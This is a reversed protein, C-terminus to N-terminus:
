SGHIQFNDGNSHPRYYEELVGINFGAGILRAILDIPPDHDRMWFLIAIKLDLPERM